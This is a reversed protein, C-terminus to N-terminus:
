TLNLTLIVQVYGNITNDLICPDGSADIIILKISNETVFQTIESRLAMKLINLGELKNTLFLIDTKFLELMLPQIGIEDHPRLTYIM